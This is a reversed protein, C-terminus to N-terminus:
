TPLSHLRQALPTSRPTGATESGGLKGVGSFDIARTGPSGPELGVTPSGGAEGVGDKRTKGHTVVGIVHPANHVPQTQTLTGTLPAM